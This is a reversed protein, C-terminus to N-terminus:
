FWYFLSAVIAFFAYGSVTAAAIVLLLWSVPNALFIVHTVLTRLADVGQVLGWLEKLLSPLKRTKGLNIAPREVVPKQEPKANGSDSIRGKVGVVSDKLLSLGEPLGALDWLLLVWIGLLVLPLSFLALPILWFYSWSWYQQAYFLLAALALVGTLLLTLVKPLLWAGIATIPQVLQQIREFQQSSLM